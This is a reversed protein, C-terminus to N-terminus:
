WFEYEPQTSAEFCCYRTESLWVTLFSRYSTNKSVEDAAERTVSPGLTPKRQGSLTCHQLIKWRRKLSLSSTCSM